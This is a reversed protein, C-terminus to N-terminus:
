RKKAYVLYDGHGRKIRRTGFGMGELYEQNHEASGKPVGHKTAASLRFREGGFNKNKPTKRNKFVMIIDRM